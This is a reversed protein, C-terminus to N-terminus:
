EHHESLFIYYLLFFFFVVSAKIHLIQGFKGPYKESMEPLGVFDSGVFDTHNKKQSLRYNCPKDDIFNKPSKWM